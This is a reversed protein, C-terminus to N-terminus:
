EVYEGGLNEEPGCHLSDIHLLDIPVPLYLSPFQTSENTVHLCNNLTIRTNIINIFQTM